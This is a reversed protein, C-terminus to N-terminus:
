EMDAVCLTAYPLVELREPEIEGGCTDCVGYTGAEIRSLAEEIQSVLSKANRVLSETTTREAVATGIDAIDGDVTIDEEWDRATVALQDCDALVRTREDELQTRLQQIVASTVM